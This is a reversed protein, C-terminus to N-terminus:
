PWHKENIKQTTKRDVSTFPAIVDGVIISSDIDGKLETLIQKIYKSVGINGAYVNVIAVTEEQISGIIM